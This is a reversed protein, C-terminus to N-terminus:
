LTAVHAHVSLLLWILTLDASFCKRTGIQQFSISKPVILVLRIRLRSDNLMTPDGLSALCTRAEVEFTLLFLRALAARLFANDAVKRCSERGVAVDSLRWFGM